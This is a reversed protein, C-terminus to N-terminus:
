PALREIDWGAAANRGGSKGEDERRRSYRFRDHLRNPCGQWFEVRAPTVRYGGWFSPLPIDGNAFKRSMREWEMELVKRSSIANSQASIWAAIQSGRPRTLFYKLSEATSVRTASGEVIVQRELPLWAFMLAVRPNGAIDRAKRSELNTFFVFGHEDFRKLLVTRQSPQGDSSVTALSM